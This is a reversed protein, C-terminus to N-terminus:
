GGDAPKAHTRKWDEAVCRIIHFSYEEPLIQKIPTLLAASGVHEIAAMIVQTQEIPVVREIALSGEAILEACHSYITSIALAREAAVREPTLGRALLLRTTEVTSEPGRQRPKGGPTVPANAAVKRLSVNVAARAALTIEGKTSLMLVPLPDASPRLYGSSLLQNILGEIEKLRLTSFKAFNRNAKYRAMEPAESGRLIQALKGKGVGHDRGRLVAITDLVILAARESQTEAKRTPTNTFEGVVNQEDCNDCCRAAEASEDDGFYDLLLRRRCSDTQAYGNMIRLLARRHEKRRETQVVLGDIVASTLPGTVNTIQELAIRAKTEGMGCRQILEDVMLMGDSESYIAAVRRIDQDGPTDNEIFHEHLMGDRTAHLLTARAPLGDRGARGAEQYYAELSGPMAYHVVFRVDPRDIGMGFANTAVVLPLDGSIFADQVRARETAQMTGHYHQAPRHLSTRIHDAVMEADKRTGTYIIGGGQTGFELIVDSLHNLKSALDPAYQVELYLNPRNFGFVFRKAEPIGLMNVIDVQTRPTATATLALTIKPNLQKRASAIQMYDPRFDHGWQSLCHAEDLVLMSLTVRALASRFNASRLREPAILVLKYDGRVLGQVRKLQEAPELTSNIYTASIGRKVMADVQDKMLAILPSFVVASGPLMLAALQYILSKGSGTPMVVLADNGAIVHTLAAEQGARFAPFGFYKQLAEQPTLSPM